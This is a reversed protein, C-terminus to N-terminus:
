LVELYIATEADAVAASQMRETVGLAIHRNGGRRRKEGGRRGIPHIQNTRVFFPTCNQYVLQYSGNTYVHSVETCNIYLPMRDRYIGLGEPCVDPHRRLVHKGARRRCCCIILSILFIVVCIAVAPIVLLLFPVTEERQLLVLSDNGLPNFAFCMVVLPKDMRGKLIATVMHPESTTSENYEFPPFTGNVSWTVVPKPNSDVSCHCLVVMDQVVCSSSLQLIVPKYEVNLPVPQSEGRGIPNEASCRVKMDRTVNYVRVRHTRQQLLETRGSQSYSWHYVSAPPDAKCSCVLQASHGEVVKVTQVQVKVDKPPFTVHLDKYTAISKAGPYKVECKLRPNVPHSVTFSLLAVLMLRHPEKHITQVEGHETGNQQAGREWIWKLTPPSSPCHYFVSCNLTVLQGVTVSLMDSIVPAAPTDAVDLNFGAPKGWLLDEGKKLTIEFKRSDDQSIREIKLSCDGDAIQGFLSTRGRFDRSVQSRDYSNFATSRLPFVYSGGRFSLKVDLKDRKARPHHAPPPFSCPIVVCSGVLAQVHEPVSPVPSATHVEMCLAAFILPRVLFVTDVHM